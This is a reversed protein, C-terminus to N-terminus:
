KSSYDVTNYYNSANDIEFFIYNRKLRNIFVKTLILSLIIIFLFPKLNMEWTAFLFTYILKYITNKNSSVDFDRFYLKTRLQISDYFGDGNRIIYLKNHGSVFVCLIGNNQIGKGFSKDNKINDVLSYYDNMNNVTIYKFDIGSSKIFLNIYSSLKEKEENTYIGINDILRNKYINPSVVYYFLMIISLCLIVYSIKKM